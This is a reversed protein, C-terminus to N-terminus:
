FIRILKNKRDIKISIKNKLNVIVQRIEYILKSFLDNIWNKKDNENKCLNDLKKNYTLTLCDSFQTDKLRVFDSKQLISKAQSKFDNNFLINRINSIDKKYDYVNKLFEEKEYNGKISAKITKYIM